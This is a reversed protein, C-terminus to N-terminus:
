AGHVYLDIDRLKSFAEKITFVKDFILILHSSTQKLSADQPRNQVYKLISGFQKSQYFVSEQNEIFYCRVRRNKFIIRELGLRKALWKLRVANFLEKVQPPVPGFRDSLHDEFEELGEETDIKNLDTYLTMRENISTVYNDPILMELDTDIQCDRVFEEQSALEESYLDKFETQKLETITEDLIKHYMDFGIDSIFGSQEGGLLNGAGRIDLDRMAINFGSGIESFEEITRLRKRADPTLASVPPRFLYCFAKKNSRGVRGRLQHLDSLGFGHAGNIIITNANPIDLGAEIINTSLLVDYERNIFRLMADELKKPDMQGHAVGIDVNPVLKLLMARVDQIDKVRNHVFFVQGGRYVEYEIAEKIIESDFQHVETVVEQRNPPPTNMVSLDRAGMLSFQLTRPIPTATLTLTDVNTKLQKLKEKVTVGFKQEEDIVLLGLDKFKFDKGVISHTGILIDVKGESAAKAIDKKQKATKFRNIFEINVPFESLRETFTKHHQSALITTPVLVAVQKSDTVAKFAARVAVETKGFGVDGCVLRDMPIGKEMDRKVDSTAKFQDPTDEYIFSAELEDQLYSDKNFAYGQSAKRKAYLKILEQAIDKIKKKTRTKLKEWSDSGLKNIRPPKSDQGTFKSIKHLSNINVYLLDNDAYIIRVAEQVQGNVEIKELGSYKGVGHDIHTVFDGPKLEKLTKLLLAQDKSYGQRISYKHFRNFIQHDTYCSFKLDRDIFGAHIASYIPIFEVEAQLDDFIHYFREIQRQNDSFIFNQYGEASQSKLDKILLEFNKNFSPQPVADFEIVKAERISYDGGFEIASYSDLHQILNGSQEFVENISGSLIPNDEELEKLLKEDSKVKTAKEYCENLKDITLQINQIWVVTKPTLIDFIASQHKLDFQTQINPVISIRNIKKQSLQSVPDFTRLSEVERDFLEIRYPFENAYSFIDIIDGRVSFQGPEYVFDTREFGNEELDHISSEIELEEGVKVYLTHKKLEKSSVVKEFLAEPYTVVIDAKAIPNTIRNITETRLQVNTHNVQHFQAPKKFSDPFFLVDKKELLNRLNNQFFAAEERDSLIFFHNNRSNKFVASAIFSDMSGVMGKLQLRAHSDGGIADGIAKIRPDERYANIISELGM